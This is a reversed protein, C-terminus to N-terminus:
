DALTRARAAIAEPTIGFHEFLWDVSGTPAFEDGVGVMEVRTPHERVVVEAVAGGLGGVVAEEVTVIGRTERAARVVADEDLPKISPMSIVRAGIGEGALIDATRLALIVTTGTAIVTVDEGERLQTSVGPVFTYDGEHIEPIKMRAIRIYVPGDYEAAWRIVQETEKPGSPSLVTLGAIERMWALDELSHHTAGLEGYAMGPSQAILKINAETYGADIKVQEMARASLFSGACSVFPIYGGNALGAGVGVMDQEAIGVNITRDPFRAEFDNLKSSGVSDNVVAVIRPDNEALDSLSEAWTTRCDFLEAAETM